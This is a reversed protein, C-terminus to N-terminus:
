STHAIFTSSLQQLGCDHVHSVPLDHCLRGGIERMGGTTFTRMLMVIVRMGTSLPVDDMAPVDPLPYDRM